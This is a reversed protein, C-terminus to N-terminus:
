VVSGRRSDVSGALRSVMGAINGALSATANQEQVIRVTSNYSSLFLERV